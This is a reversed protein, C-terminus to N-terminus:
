EISGPDPHLPRIEVTGGAAIYTRAYALAEDLDACDIVHLGGLQERTEAFPGDVVTIGRGTGRVTTSTETASLRLSTVLANKGRAVDLAEAHAQMVRQRQSRDIARWEEESFCCLLAYLM